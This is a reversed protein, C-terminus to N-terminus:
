VQAAANKVRIIGPIFDPDNSASALYATENRHDVFCVSRRKNVSNPTKLLGQWVASVGRM